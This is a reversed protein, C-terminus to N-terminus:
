SKIQNQNNNKQNNDPEKKGVGFVKIKNLYSDLKEKKKQKEIIEEKEEQSIIRNNKIIKILITLLKKNDENSIARGTYLIDNMISCFKAEEQKGKKEFYNRMKLYGTGHKIGFAEYFFSLAIQNTKDLVEKPKKEQMNSIEKLYFRNRNNKFRTFKKYLDKEMIILIILVGSIIGIATLLITGIHETIIM